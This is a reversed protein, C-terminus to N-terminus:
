FGVTALDDTIGAATTTKEVIPQAIVKPKGWMELGYRAVTVSCLPAVNVKGLRSFAWRDTLKRTEVGAVATDLTVQGGHEIVGDMVGDYIGGCAVAFQTSDTTRVVLGAEELAPVLSAAPSGRDVVFCAPKWKRNLEICRKVVWGLGRHAHRFPEPIVELFTKGNTMRSATGISATARNPPADIGFVISGTRVPQRNRLDNWVQRPILSDEDAESPWDGISLREVAFLKGDAGWLASREGIVYDETLRPSGYAPNAMAIYRNDTAVRVPDSEYEDRDVSWELYCLRPDNGKLARRRVRSLVLGHQHFEQNVASSAYWIQPNPSTTLTPLLASMATEPLNYAEDLIVLDAPFGRGSGSTRAIFRLRQGSKLEIGEDGHSRTVKAVQGDFEPVAEILSSVRRFADAATKFEHATHLILREGFLFLGALERAELVTGKGNQRSIVMAVEFASWKEDEREGLAMELINAQWPDLYLGAAAALQVAYKGSSSVATTPLSSVRPYMDGIIPM